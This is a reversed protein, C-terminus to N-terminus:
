IGCLQASAQKRAVFIGNKPACEPAKNLSNPHTLQWKKLACGARSGLLSYIYIFILYICLYIFIYIFLYIFLIILYDFRCLASSMPLMQDGLFGVYMIIYKNLSM